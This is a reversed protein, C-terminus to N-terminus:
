SLVLKIREVRLGMLIDGISLILVILVVIELLLVHIIPLVLLVPLGLLIELLWFHVIVVRLRELVILKVTLVLIERRSWLFEIFVFVLILISVVDM